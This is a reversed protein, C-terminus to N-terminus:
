NKRRGRSLLGIMYGAALAIGVAILPNERITTRATELMEDLSERNDGTLKGVEERVKGEIQQAKGKAEEMDM